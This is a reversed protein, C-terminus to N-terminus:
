LRAESEVTEQEEPASSEQTSYGMEKFARWMTFTLALSGVLMVTGIAAFVGEVVILLMRISREPFLLTMALVFIVVLHWPVNRVPLRELFWKPAPAGLYLLIMSLTFSFYCSFLVIEWFLNVADFLADLEYM